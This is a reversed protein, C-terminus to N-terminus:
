RRQAGGDDACRGHVHVSTSFGCRLGCGLRGLVEADLLYSLGYHCNWCAAWRVVEGEFHRWKFDSM